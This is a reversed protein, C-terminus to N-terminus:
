DVEQVAAAASTEPRLLGALFGLVLAAVVAAIAM